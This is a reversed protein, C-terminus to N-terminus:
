GWIGSVGWFFVLVYDFGESRGGKVDCGVHRIGCCSGHWGGNGAGLFVAKEAELYGGNELGLSGGSENLNCTGEARVMEDETGLDQRRERSEVVVVEECPCTDPGLGKAGHGKSLCSTGDEVVEVEM